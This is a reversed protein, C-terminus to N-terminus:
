LASLTSGVSSQVNQYVVSYRVLSRTTIPLQPVRMALKRNGLQLYGASRGRLGDIRHGGHHAERDNEEIEVAGDDVRARDDEGRHPMRRALHQTLLEAVVLEEARDAPGTELRLHGHERGVLDVLEDPAVARVVLRQVVPGLGAGAHPVHEHPQAVLAAPEADHGRRAAGRDLERERADREAVEELRDDSPVLRLPVLGVRLRQQDRRLAHGDLRLAACVHPVRREVQAGRASGPHVGDRDCPAPDVVAVPELALLRVRDHVRRLLQKLVELTSARAVSSRSSSWRAKIAYWTSSSGTM